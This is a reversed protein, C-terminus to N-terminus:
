LAGGETDDAALFQVVPVPRVAADIKAGLIYDGPETPDLYSYMEILLTRLVGAEGQLRTIEDAQKTDAVQPAAKPLGAVRADEEAMKADFWAQAGGMAKAEDINPYNGPGALTNEIWAMGDICGDGVRFEIVAAQMAIVHNAFIAGFAQARRESKDADKQLAEISALAPAVGDALSELGLAVAVTVMDTCVATFMRKANALEDRLELALDELANVYGMYADQSDYDPSIRAVQDKLWQEDPTAPRMALESEEKSAYESM